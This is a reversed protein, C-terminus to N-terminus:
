KQIYFKNRYGTDAVSVRAIGILFGTGSTPQPPCPVLTMPGADIVYGSGATTIVVHAGSGGAIDVTVVCSVNASQKLEFTDGVLYGVAFTSDESIQLVAGAM